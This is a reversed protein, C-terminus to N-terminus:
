QKGDKAQKKMPISANEEMTSVEAVDNCMESSATTNLGVAHFMTARLPLVFGVCGERDSCQVQSCLVRVLRDGADKATICTMTTVKEGHHYERKPNQTVVQVNKGEKTWM